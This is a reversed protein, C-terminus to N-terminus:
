LIGLIMNFDAEFIHIVRLKDLIDNGAMKELMTNHITLWRPLALGHHSCLNILNTMVGFIQNSPPENTTTDNDEPALLAHYIGLHRGSPSTSTSEKWKKISQRM